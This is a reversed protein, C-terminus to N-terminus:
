TLEGLSLLTNYTKESMYIVHNYEDIITCSDNQLKEVHVVGNVCINFDKGVIISRAVYGYYFKPPNFKPITLIM